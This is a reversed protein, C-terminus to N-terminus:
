PSVHVMARLVERSDQTLNAVSFRVDLSQPSLVQFSSGSLCSDATRRAGHEQRGELGLYWESPQRVGEGM